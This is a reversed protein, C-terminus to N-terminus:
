GSWRVTVLCAGLLKAIVAGVLVGVGTITAVSLAPLEVFDNHFSALSHGVFVLM